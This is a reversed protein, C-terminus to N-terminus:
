ADIDDDVHQRWGLLLLDYQEAQEGAGEEGKNDAGHASFEDDPKIRGVLNRGIKFQRAPNNKETHRETGVQHAETEQLHRPVVDFGAFEWVMIWGLYLAELVAFGGGFSQRGFTEDSSCRMSRRRAAPM